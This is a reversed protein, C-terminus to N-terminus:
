TELRWLTFTSQTMQAFLAPLIRPRMLELSAKFGLQTLGKTSRGKFSTLHEQWFRLLSRCKFLPWSHTLARSLQYSRALWRKSRSTARLFILSMLSVEMAISFNFARINSAAAVFEIILDDDKNFTLMGIQSSREGYLKLISQTLTAVQWQLPM